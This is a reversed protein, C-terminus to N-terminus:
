GNVLRDILRRRSDADKDALFQRAETVSPIRGALDLYVRRLFEADDSRAAPTVGATRWAAPLHRDITDAIERVAKDRASAASAQAVPKVAPAQSQVPATLGALVVPIILWSLRARMATRWPTAFGPDVSGVLNM